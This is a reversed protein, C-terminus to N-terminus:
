DTLLTSTYRWRQSASLHNHHMHPAYVTGSMSEHLDDSTSVKVGTVAIQKSEAAAFSGDPYCIHSAACQTVSLCAGKFLNLARYSLMLLLSYYRTCRQLMRALKQIQLANCALQLLAAQMRCRSAHSESCQSAVPILVQVHDCGQFPKQELSDVVQSLLM